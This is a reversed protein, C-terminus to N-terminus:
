LEVPRQWWSVDHWRGQKYGVEKFVGIHEFGLSKHLALSAPNPLTIGAFAYHYGLAGLSEFLAQYLRKGLGQGQFDPHLYVSTEAAFRYAERARHATAYAYGCISGAQEAVLWDHSALSGEVRRAFEDEAPVQLEFSTSMDEVFPRYIELLPAADSPHAKRIKM